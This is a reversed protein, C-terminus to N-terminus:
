RSPMRLDHVVLQGRRSYDISQGLLRAAEQPAHFGTYNEAEPRKAM